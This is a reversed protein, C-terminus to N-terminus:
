CWSLVLDDEDRKTNHICIGIASRVPSVSGRARAHIHASTSAKIYIYKYVCAPEAGGARVGELAFSFGGRSTPPFLSLSRSLPLLLPSLTVACHIYVIYACLAAAARAREERRARASTCAGRVAVAAATVATVVVM